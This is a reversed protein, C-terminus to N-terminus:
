RQGYEFVTDNPYIKKAKYRLLDYYSVDGLKLYDTLTEARVKKFAKKVSRKLSICDFKLRNSWSKSKIKVAYKRYIESTTDEAYELINIVQQPNTTRHVILRLLDEYGSIPKPSCLLLLSGMYQLAIEDDIEEATALHSAVLYLLANRATIVKKSETDLSDNNDVVLPVKLDLLKRLQEFDDDVLLDIVNNVLKVSEELGQGQGYIGLFEEREEPDDIYRAAYIQASLLDRVEPIHGGKVSYMDSGDYFYKGDGRVDSEPGFFLTNQKTYMSRFDGKYLRDLTELSEKRYFSKLTEFVKSTPEVYVQNGRRLIDLIDVKSDISDWKSILNDMIVKGDIGTNSVMREILVQLRDTSPLPLVIKYDRGTKYDQDAKGQDMKIITFVYKENKLM